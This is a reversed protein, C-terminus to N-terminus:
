QAMLLKIRQKLDMKLGKLMHNSIVFGKANIFQQKPVKKETKATTVFTAKFMSILCVPKLIADLIARKHRKHCINSEALLLIHMILQSAASPRECCLSQRCGRVSESPSLSHQQRISAAMQFIYRLSHGQRFGALALMSSPDGEAIRCM